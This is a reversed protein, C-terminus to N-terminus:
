PLDAAAAIHRKVISEAHIGPVDAIPIEPLVHDDEELGDFDHQSFSRILFLISFQPAHSKGAERKRRKHPYSKCSLISPLPTSRAFIYFDDGLKAHCERDGRTM